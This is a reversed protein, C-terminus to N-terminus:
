RPFVGKLMALSYVIAAAGFFLLFVSFDAPIVESLFTYLSLIASRQVDGGAAYRVSLDGVLTFDLLADIILFPISIAALASAVIAHFYRVAKLNSYLALLSPVMFFSSLIQFILGTRFSLKQVQSSSAFFALGAEVNGRQFIEPPASIFLLGESIIVLAFTVGVLIASLGGIKHLNNM